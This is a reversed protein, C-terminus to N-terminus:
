GRVEAAEASGDGGPAAGRRRRAPRVPLVKLERGRKRVTNRNLGLLRAARLQNGGATKLVHEFLAREVLGIALRHVEGPRHTLLHDALAPIIPELLRAYTAYGDLPDDM